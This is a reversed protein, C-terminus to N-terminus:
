IAPLRTNPRRDDVVFQWFEVEEELLWKMDSQVGPDSAEFRYHRTSHRIEDEAEYRLQAKLIAFDWGTALLYHLIQVYYQQPIRGNWDEWGSSSRPSSTKIELIGRRGTTLDILEGDLTGGIFAHIPHHHVKYGDNATVEYQPHDLAFLSVLYQEADIGYRVYPKDSIDDPISRGTKEMWVDVNTRYNSAGIVAAADSGGLWHRRSELWTERDSSM